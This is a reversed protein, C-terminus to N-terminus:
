RAIQNLHATFRLRPDNHPIFRPLAAGRRGNVALELWARKDQVNKPIERQASEPAVRKAGAELPPFCVHGFGRGDIEFRTTGALLEQLRAVVQTAVEAPPKAFPGFTFNDETRENEKLNAISIAGMEPLRVETLKAAGRRVKDLSAVLAVDWLSLNWVIDDVEFALVVRAPGEYDESDRVDLRLTPIEVGMGESRLEFLGSSLAGLNLIIEHDSSPRRLKLRVSRDSVLVFDIPGRSAAGLRAAIIIARHTVPVVWTDSLLRTAVPSLVTFRVAQDRIARGLTEAMWAAVVLNPKAPLGFLWAFWEDSKALRRAPVGEPFSGVEIKRHQILAYTNGWELDEGEQVHRSNPSGLVFLAAEGLGPVRHTVTEGREGVLKLEYDKSRPSVAFARGEIPIEDAVKFRGRNPSYSGIEVYRAYPFQPVLLFLQWKGHGASPRLQFCLRATSLRVARRGAYGRADANIGGQYLSCDELGPSNPRHRFHAVQQTGSGGAFIVSQRCEPCIGNIWSAERAYAFFFDNTLRDLAGNM